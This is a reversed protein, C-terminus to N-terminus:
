SMSQNPTPQEGSHESSILIRGGFNSIVLRAGPDILLRDSSSSVRQYLLGLLSKALPDRRLSLVRRLAQEAAAPEEDKVFEAIGIRLWHEAARETALLLGLEMGCRRCTEAEDLRARCNPCREM